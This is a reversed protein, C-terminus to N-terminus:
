LITGVHPSIQRRRREPSRRTGGVAATTYNLEPEKEHINNNNCFSYIKKVAKRKREREQRIRMIINNWEKTLGVM